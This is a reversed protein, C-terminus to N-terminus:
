SDAVVVIDDMVDLVDYGRAAVRDAADFIDEGEQETPYIGSPTMVRYTREM